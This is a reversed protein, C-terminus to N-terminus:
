VIMHLLSEHIFLREMQNSNKKTNKSRSASRSQDHHWIETFDDPASLESIVVINNQSWNRMIEWFADNDFKDYKKTDRRYKIPYKNERYPPDCYILSKSPNMTTYDLTDFSVDKILPATRKLSNTMEKCFDEKKDGLYKQSYAGFFRGGFSMGFGVFAKHSNPSPLSKAVMYQKESISTPYKFTGDRVDKWMSILDPHYDSAHIPVDIDTMNRLVGLSGCFPEIYSKIRYGNSRSNEIIDKLIPAIKKGVRQKGGLYKMYVVNLNCNDTTANINRYM